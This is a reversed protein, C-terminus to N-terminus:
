GEVQLPRVPARRCATDQTEAHRGWGRGPPGEGVYPSNLHKESNAQQYKGESRGCGDPHPSVRAISVARHTGYAGAGVRARAEIPAEAGLAHALRLSEAGPGILRHQDGDTAGQEKEAHESQCAMVIGYGELSV